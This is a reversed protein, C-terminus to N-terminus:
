DEYVRCEDADPADKCYIEMPDTSASDAKEQAKKHAVASSIEEVSDWAVACDPSAGTECAEEAEKIADKLAAADEIKSGSKVIVRMARAPVPRVAVRGTCSVRTSLTSRLASM